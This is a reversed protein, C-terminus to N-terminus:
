SAPSLWDRINLHRPPSDFGPGRVGCAFLKVVRGGGSGLLGITRRLPCYVLVLIIVMDALHSIPFTISTQM